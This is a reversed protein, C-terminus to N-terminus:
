RSPDLAELLARIRGVASTARVGYWFLDKGSLFAVRDHGLHTRLERAHTEDFAFPEDPLLVLDPRREELEELTFRPYRTDKGTQVPSRTPDLDAALPYRRSRGSFANEAGAAELISSAFTHEDFSMWPDRWIPVAVRPRGDRWAPAPPPEEQVSGPADVGLLTALTRLYTHSGSLSQPFSVNVRLGAAMLAEVDKRGNEEQNALVLDPQLAIVRAVDFRKTGGVSPIADVGAPEVCYDTRGVLRGLGALAAVSETESPVLSVVRTAGGGNGPANKLLPRGM